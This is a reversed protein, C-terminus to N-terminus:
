TCLGRRLQAVVSAEESRIVISPYRLLPTGDLVVENQRMQDLIWNLPAVHIAGDVEAALVRGGSLKWEVDLYRRRGSPEIRVAQHTPLPLRNRKCLSIFDIESLAQAGQEIDYLALRLARFHRVKPQETLAAHLASATVLRQQVGSALIACAPRATPFSGAAVILSPALRHLRRTPVTATGDWDVARHLVLRDLNPRRTGAPALVHLEEREWGTLGWCAAATFSTLVSRPGCNILMARERQARTPTGNHLLVASGFRRWRRAALNAAIVPSRVGATALERRSAVGEFRDLHAAQWRQV